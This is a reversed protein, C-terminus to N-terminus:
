WTTDIKNLFQVQSRRPEASIRSAAPISKNSVATREFCPFAMLELNAPSCFPAARNISPPPSPPADQMKLARNPLILAWQGVVM